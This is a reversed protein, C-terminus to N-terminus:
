KDSRERMLGALVEALAAGQRSVDLRQLVDRRNDRGWEEGAPGLAALIGETLGAIDGEAVIPNWEPVVEPIAGSRTAVVPLGTAMAEVLVFSFQEEWKWTRRSALVVVRSQRMLDAVESRRRSGLVELYPRISALDELHPRLPGDGVVRLKLGPVTQAAKACATVIDLLGKDAGRDARLMGVFLVMPQRSLGEHAPRFQETDVGAPIVVCREPRCGLAVAHRKALDTLCVFLDAREVTRRTIFRWPPFRYLPNDAMTEAVWVVHPASLRRALKAAQSTTISYLELSVVIDADDVYRRLHRYWALAAAWGEQGGTFPVRRVPLCLRQPGAGISGAAVVTLEVNPMAGFLEGEHSTRAPPEVVVIHLTPQEPVTDTM